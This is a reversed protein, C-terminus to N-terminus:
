ESLYKENTVIEKLLSAHTESLRSEKADGLEAMICARQALLAPLFGFSKTHLCRRIGRACFRRSDPYRDMQMCIEALQYCVSPEVERGSEGDAPHEPCHRLLGALVDYGKEFQGMLQCCYVMMQLILIERNTFMMNQLWCKCLEPCTLTLVQRLKEFVIEPAEGSALQLATEAMQRGQMEVHTEKGPIAEYRSLFRSLDASERMRIMHEMEWLLRRRLMRRRGAYSAYMTEPEGMRRMLMRFTNRSPESVGNEIRSITSVSCIGDSLEEQTLKHRMRAARLIHGIEYYEM